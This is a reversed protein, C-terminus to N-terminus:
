RAAKLRRRRTASVSTVGLLGLLALWDLSGSKLEIQVTELATTVSAASSTASRNGAADVAVVTYSYSTNPQLGSDRLTLAATTTLSVGNRFVNYGTVAVNDTAANWSLDIETSSVASARVNTPTSPPTADPLPPGAPTTVNATNSAGSANGAADVAVVAYSYSTSPSATTDTFATTTSTGIQIGNRQIRYGTVAVNDSSATWSLAVQTASSATAVLATPATPAQTDAIAPTTVSRATSEASRNGAADLASVTYSYTTNAAVTTDSFSTTASTGVVNGDRLVRYQTVGVNDTSATWALTVSTPNVSPATLATPVTPAQTDVAAPTTASASASEASRNGAADAASVTYTYTTSATRGSDVFSTGTVTGADAGNRRVRYNAVGVNDTSATWSVTIQSASNAVVQVGTPTTPAQTDAAAPTTASATSSEASRNGAADAASVTYTYTTSATRGTDVFSTGTVTGADAGNRRVRYNAVGVNDTSAAWTVTVQTPSNAVAQVSAPVSPPQTDPAAPTTASASASEASRNGAADASSVTYTYTTSATRGTDVFSTGTVTGADAGNRRVRYNAVGINDTSAAWTVTIQTASNAVAQVSAPVSPAQTDPAAPTTASATSSENSRNGAADAASVTYTYLTNATLGTDSFSTSTATGADAGNRRVRYNAVGVNDTAATWSLNVQTSSVATATLGTPTTPPTTDASGGSLPADQANWVATGTNVLTICQSTAQTNCTSSGSGESFRYWGVLNAESGTLPSAFQTQLETNTKARSWYRVEDVLGKYDEYQTLVGIAAQKEAGWFWGRQNAPFGSWSDWYQRMNTRASSTETDILVGDIWLELQSQSAGVFRRVLAVHHWNGDLLNPGTSAPFAQVTWLQGAVSNSVGDGFLWRIRGSGYFQLSFTGNQFASGANQHGDLLFNGEFWWGSSSYPANDANSWNQLQAQGSGTPGTPFSNNPRIWLEMTFEANGFGAPITLQTGYDFSGASSLRWELSAAAAM